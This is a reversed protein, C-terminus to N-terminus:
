FEKHKYIHLSLFYSICLIFSLIALLLIVLSFTPMTNAKELLSETYAVGKKDQIYGLLFNPAFFVAMFFVMNLIRMYASGFKFYFPFYLSFLITLSTLVTFVDLAKIFPVDKLLGTSSIFFGMIGTFSLGIISFIFISFYKAQVIQKRQIPLSLLFIDSKSKEDYGIASLIFIYGIAVSGMTYLTNSFPGRFAFLAFVSYALAFGFTKKQILIDKLILKFM